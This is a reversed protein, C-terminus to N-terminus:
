DIIFVASLQPGPTLVNYLQKCGPILYVYPKNIEITIVVGNKDSLFM